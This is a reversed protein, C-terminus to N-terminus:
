RLAEIRRYLAAVGAQKSLDLDAYSVTVSRVENWEAGQVAGPALATISAASIALCAFSARFTTM